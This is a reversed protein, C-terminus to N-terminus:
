NLNKQFVEVGYGGRQAGTLSHKNEARRRSVDRTHKDSRVLRDASLQQSVIDKSVERTDVQFQVFVFVCVCM